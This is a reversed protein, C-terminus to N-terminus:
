LDNMILVSLISRNLPLNASIPLEFIGNLRLLFSANAFAKAFDQSIIILM